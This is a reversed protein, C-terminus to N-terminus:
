YTQNPMASGTPMSTCAQRYCCASSCIFSDTKLSSRLVLSLNCISSLVVQSNARAPTSSSVILPPSVSDQVIPQGSERATVLSLQPLYKVNQTWRLVQPRKPCSHCQGLVCTEIETSVLQCTIGIDGTKLGPAQWAQSSSNFNSAETLPQKWNGWTCKQALLSHMLQETKIHTYSRQHPVFQVCSPGKAQRGFQTHTYVYCTCPRHSDTNLSSQVHWHWGNIDANQPLSSIWALPVQAHPWIYDPIYIHM